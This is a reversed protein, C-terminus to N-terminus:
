IYLTEYDFIEEKAHIVFSKDRSEKNLVYVRVHDEKKDSNEELELILKKYEVRSVEVEFVSYNVRKGFYSLIKEIKRRRKDDAVDYPILLYMKKVICQKM